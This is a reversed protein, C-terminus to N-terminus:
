RGFRRRLLAVTAFVGGLLAVSSGSDPVAGKEVIYGGVLGGEDNWQPTGYRNITLGTSDGNPEGPGFNSIDFASWAEGTVWAWATPDRTTQNPATTYGGLWAQYQPGDNATFFDDGIFSDYVALTEQLTTLTALYGGQAIAEAKADAWLIARSAWLEYTHGNYTTSAVFTAASANIGSAVIGCIAIAGTTILLKKM